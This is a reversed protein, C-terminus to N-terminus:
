CRPNPRMTAESSSNGFMNAFVTYLPDSRDYLTIIRGLGVLVERAALQRVRGREARRLPPREVRLRPALAQQEGLSAPMAMARLAM